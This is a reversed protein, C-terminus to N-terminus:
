DSAQVFLEAIRKKRAEGTVAYSAMRNAFGQFMALATREYDAGQEGALMKEMRTLVAFPKKLSEALNGRSPQGNVWEGFRLYNPM